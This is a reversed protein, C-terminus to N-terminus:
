KQWKWPTRGLALLIKKGGRRGEHSYHVTAISALIKKRHSHLFVDQRIGRRPLLLSSPPHVLNKKIMRPRFSCVASTALQRLRRKQGFSKEDQKGKYKLASKGRRKGRGEPPIRRGRRREGQETACSALPSVAM